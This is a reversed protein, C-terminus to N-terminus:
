GLRPAWGAVRRWDVSADTLEGFFDSVGASKRERSEVALLLATPIRPGVWVLVRHM